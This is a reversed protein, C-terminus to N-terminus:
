NGDVKVLQYYWFLDKRGDDQQVEFALYDPHGYSNIVTGTKGILEPFISRKVRVRTGTRIQPSNM